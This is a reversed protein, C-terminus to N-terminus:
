SSAFVLKKAVWADAPGSASQLDGCPSKHETSVSFILICSDFPLPRGRVEKSAAQHHGLSLAPKMPDDVIVEQKTIHSNLPGEVALLSALFQIEDNLHDDAEPATEQPELKVSSPGAFNEVKCHSVEVHLSPCLLLQLSSLGAEEAAECDTFLGAIPPEAEESFSRTGRDGLVMLPEVFGAFLEHKKLGAAATAFAEPLRQECRGSGLSVTGVSDTAELQAPSMLGGPSVPASWSPLAVKGLERGYDELCADDFDQWDSEDPEPPRSAITTPWPWPGQVDVVQQLVEQGVEVLHRPSADSCNSYFELSSWNSCIFERLRMEPVDDDQVIHAPPPSTSSIASVNFKKWFEQRLDHGKDRSSWPCDETEMEGWSSSIKSIERSSPVVSIHECSLAHVQRSSPTDAIHGSSWGTFPRSNSFERGLDHIRGVVRIRFPRWLGTLRSFAQQSVGVSM